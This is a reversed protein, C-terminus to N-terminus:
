YDPTTVTSKKQLDVLLERLAEESYLVAIKAPDFLM